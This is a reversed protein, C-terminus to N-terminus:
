LKNSDNSASAAEKERVGQEIQNALEKINQKFTTNPFKALLTQLTSRAEDFNKGKFQARAKWFYAPEAYKTDFFSRLVEDYSIIASQYYGLKRYQEAADFEKKALKNRLEQLKQTAEPVYDSQPYEELLQQLADIASYTYKQDLASNPSLEFYALCIKYQADDVFESRPYLSILKEFEAAATIYENQQYYCDAFYYQAQDVIRSGPNNLILIQFQTKADFYKGKEYLGKAYAFREDLPMRATKIRGGCSVTLLAAALVFLIMLSKRM